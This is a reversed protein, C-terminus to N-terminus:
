RAGSRILIGSLVRDWGAYDRHVEIEGFGQRTVIELVNGAGDAHLEFCLLGGPKLLLSASESIARYFVFGDPVALAMKPEHDKVGTELASWETEPIYPPNSVIVDYEERVEDAFGTHLADVQRFCIRDSVCHRDANREAVELAGDSLDVATINTNPMKLALMVALCGSGTGIDLIAVKKKKTLGDAAMRDLAHELVLETEPRPILVREDVLFSRGYFFQEGTIYQLPKGKLREKCLSRFEEVESEYVPHDHKLYLDMRTSHLVHALLIEANLRSAELEKERFHEEAAKLLDLTLWQQKNERM